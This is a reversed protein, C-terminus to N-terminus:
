LEGSLALFLSFSCMEATAKTAVEKEDRNEELTEHTTLNHTHTDM